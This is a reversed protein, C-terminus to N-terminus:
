MARMSDILFATPTKRRFSCAAAHQSHPLRMRPPWSVAGNELVDGELPIANESLTTFRDRAKIQPRERPVSKGTPTTVVVALLFSATHTCVVVSSLFSGFQASRAASCCAEDRRFESTPIGLSLM